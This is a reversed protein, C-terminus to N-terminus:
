ELAKIAKENGQKAALTYYKLAMNTDQEVGRGKSYCLGLSYQAKHYGQEASLNFWKVAEKYDQNIGDGFYYSMGICYQAM